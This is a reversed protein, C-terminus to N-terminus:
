RDRGWVGRATTMIPYSIAGLGSRQVGWSEPHPNTPRSRNVSGDAWAVTMRGSEREPENPSFMGTRVDLLIGKSSPYRVDAVTVGRLMSLDEPPEEGMWYTPIASTTHTLRFNTSIFPNTSRQAGPVDCIFWDAHPDDAFVHMREPIVDLTAPVVISPWYVSDIKFHRNPWADRWGRVAMEKEGAGTEGIFPFFGRQDSTYLLLGAFSQQQASLLVVEEAENRTRSLAPLALGILLSVVGSVVMAETLTFARHWKLPHPM